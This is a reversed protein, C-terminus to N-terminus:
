GSKVRVWALQHIKNNFSGPKYKADPLDPYEFEVWKPDKPFNKLVEYKDGPYFIEGEGLRRYGKEM